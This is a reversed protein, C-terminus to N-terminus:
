RVDQRRVEERLEAVRIVGARQPRAEIEHVAAVIASNWPASVSLREAEAVIWGNLYDVETPEGRELSQQSSSKYQGHKRTALRLGLSAVFRPLRIVRAANFGGLSMAVAGALGGVRLSEAVLELFAHRIVSHRMMGAMGLGSVVGLSTMAANVALKNWKVSFMDEYTHTRVIDELVDAARRARTGPGVSGRPWPGLHLHGPGTLHSHGPGILTAPYYVACDLFREGVLNAIQDGLLGNQFSVCIGDDELVQIWSSAADLAASCKTAIVLLDVSTGVEQATSVTSASATETPAGAVDIRLQSANLAAAKEATRAALQVEHGAAALRVAAVIGLAGPGVILVRQQGNSSSM